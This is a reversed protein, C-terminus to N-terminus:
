GGPRLLALDTQVVDGPPHLREVVERLDISSQAVLGDGNADGIVRHGDDYIERVGVAVAELDIVFQRAALPVLVARERSAAVLSPEGPGPVFRKALRRRSEGGDSRRRGAAGSTLPRRLVQHADDVHLAADRLKGRAVVVSRGRA